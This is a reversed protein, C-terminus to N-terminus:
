KILILKMNLFYGEDKIFTFYKKKKLCFHRRSIKKKKMGMECGFM